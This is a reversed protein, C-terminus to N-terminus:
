CGNVDFCSEVLLFMRVQQLSLHRKANKLSLANKFTPINNQM